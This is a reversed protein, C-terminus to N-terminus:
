RFNDRDDYDDNDLANDITEDIYADSFDAAKSSDTSKKSAAVIERIDKVSQLGAEDFAKLYVDNMTLANPPLGVKYWPHQMIQTIGIRKNPDDKLIKKILDRCDSSLDSPLHYSLSMIRNLVHKQRQDESLQTDESRSFPYQGVLMVYLVVGCSWIDSMMANYAGDRTKVVEPAM